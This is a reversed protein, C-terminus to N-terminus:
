LTGDEPKIRVNLLTPQPIMNRSTPSTTPFMPYNDTWSTM